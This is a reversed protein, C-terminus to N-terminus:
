TTSEAEHVGWGPIAHPALRKPLLRDLSRQLENALEAAHLQCGLDKLRTLFALHGRSQRYDPERSPHLLCQAIQNLDADVLLSGQFVVLHKRRFLSTGAVKRVGDACQVSLDSIGRQQLSLGTSEHIAEIWAENIARFYVANSYLSQAFFAATLILCGSGLLVTGGGGRRKLVPIGATRCHDLNVECEAQNSSSLVVCTRKSEFSRALFPCCQGQSNLFSNWLPLPRYLVWNDMWM